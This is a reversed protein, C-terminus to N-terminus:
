NGGTGIDLIKLKNWTDQHFKVGMREIKREWKEILQMYFKRALIQKKAKDKERNMENAIAKLHTDLEEPNELLYNFIRHLLGTQLQITRYKLYSTFEIIKNFIRIRNAPTIGSSDVGIMYPEDQPINYKEEVIPLGAWKKEKMQRDFVDEVRNIVSNYINDKERQETLSNKFLENTNTCLNKFDEDLINVAKLKIRDANPFINIKLKEVEEKKVDELALLLKQLQLNILAYNKHKELINRDVKEYYKKRFKRANEKEKEAVDRYKMIDMVAVFTLILVLPLLIQVFINWVGSSGENEGTDLAKQLFSLDNTRGDM